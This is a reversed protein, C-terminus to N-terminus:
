DEKNEKIIIDLKYTNTMIHCDAKGNKELEEVISDSDKLLEIAKDICIKLDTDKYVYSLKM